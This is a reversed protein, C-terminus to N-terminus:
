EGDIQLKMKIIIYTGTKRLFGPWNERGSQHVSSHHLHRWLRVWMHDIKNIVHVRKLKSCSGSTSVDENTNTYKLHKFSSKITGSMQFGSMLLRTTYKLSSKLEM